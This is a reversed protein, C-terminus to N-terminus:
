LDHGAGFLSLDFAGHLERVTDRDVELRRGGLSQRFESGLFYKQLFKKTWQLQRILNSTRLRRIFKPVPFIWGRHRLEDSAACIFTIELQERGCIPQVFIDAKAAGIKRRKMGNAIGWEFVFGRNVRQALM